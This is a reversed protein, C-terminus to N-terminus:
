KVILQAIDKYKWLDDEIEEANSSTAVRDANSSTAIGPSDYASVTFCFLMIFVLSISLIQKYKM